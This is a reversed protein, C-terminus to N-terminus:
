GSQLCFDEILVKQLIHTIKSHLMPIKSKLYKSSYLDSAFNFRNKKDICEFIKTANIAWQGRAVGMFLCM